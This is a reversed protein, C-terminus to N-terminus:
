DGHCAHRIAQVVLEDEDPRVTRLDFWVAEAQVRGIVSPDGCRLRRAMESESISQSKIRVSVSDLGQGPLSGGGLYATSEEVCVTVLNELNRLSQVMVDARRRLEDRTQKAMTLVPLERTARRPDRHIRLTAELASLILKDVRLSRMLPNKEIKEIWQHRGIIIGAQPGGLLKDGSFLVLDAGSSISDPATPEDHLGLTDFERMAGSGIDHIVPLKRQQGLAVLEVLPVSQTFGEIHYNSPHIKMIAAVDPDIAREYDSYRTKNTTGIERLVAGSVQMIEPLRFNDGIEILEGRSVLVHKPFNPEGGVVSSLVLMTAAANNNVVVASEAGTLETLLGRVAISRHSRRGTDLDLEVNAYRGALIRMHDAVSEALPSRGLGTHLIIGTANIVSYLNPKQSQELVAAVQGALVNTLPTPQSCSALLDRSCQLVSRAASVIQHRPVKQRWRDLTPSEVLSHVSPLDRQPSRNSEPVIEGRHTM